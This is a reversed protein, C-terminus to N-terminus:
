KKREKYMVRTEKSWSIEPREERIEGREEREEEVERKEGAEPDGSPRSKNKKESERCLRGKVAGFECM